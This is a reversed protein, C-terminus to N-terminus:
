RAPKRRSVALADAEIDALMVNMGASRSLERRAGSGYRERRQYSAMKGALERM